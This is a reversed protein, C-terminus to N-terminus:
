IRRTKGRAQRRFETPAKGTWRRFARTFPAVGSFGLLCAIETMSSRGERLHADALERRTEELLQVYTTSEAVLSRQLARVSLEVRLPSFSRGVLPRCLRVAVALVADLPERAGLEPGQETRLAVRYFAGHDELRITAGDSFLGLL